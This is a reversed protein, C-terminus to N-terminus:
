RGARWRGSGCPEEILTASAQGSDNGVTVEVVTKEYFGAPLSAGRDVLVITGEAEDIELREIGTRQRGAASLSWSRVGNAEHLVLEGPLLPFVDPNTPYFTGDGNSLSVSVPESTPDFGDGCGSFSFLARLRLREDPLDNLRLRTVALGLAFSPGSSTGIVQVVSGKFEHQFQIGESISETQFIDGNLVWCNNFSPTCIQLLAGQGGFDFSLASPTATLGDGNLTAITSNSGSHPGVMRLVTEPIGDAEMSLDWDVIDGATLAGTAGNTEIFGTLRGAAVAHDIAYRNSAVAPAAILGLGFLLLIEARRM